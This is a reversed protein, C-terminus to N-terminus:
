DRKKLVGPLTFRFESGKGPESEVWIRGGHGNVIARCVALGIGTGKYTSNPHLREFLGFIKESHRMDIGIGNDSVCFTWGDGGPQASIRIEPKRESRYKISNSILNQFLQRLRAQDGEVTPLVDSHVEAGSEEIQSLLDQLVTKLVANLDAEGSKGDVHSVTAYELLGQIMSQMSEAGEGIFRL